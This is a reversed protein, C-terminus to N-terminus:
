KTQLITIRYIEFKIMLEKFVKLCIVYLLRTKSYWFSSFTHDYWTKVEWWKYFMLSQEPGLKMNERQSWYLANAQPRAAMAKRVSPQFYISTLQSPPIPSSSHPMGFSFILTPVIGISLTILQIYSGIKYVSRTPDNHNRYLDSIINHLHSTPLLHPM